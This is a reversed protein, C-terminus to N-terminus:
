FNRISRVLHTNSKNEPMVKGQFNEMWAKSQSYPTSSWYNQNLNFSTGVLLLSSNVFYYQSILINLQVIDPVYWGNDFDVASVVPCLGPTAALCQTNYYGSYQSLTGGNIFFSQRNSLNVVNVNANAWKVQVTYDELSVAWGHMGSTDVFFVVGMATQGESPWESPKVISNDTCLIDGVVIPSIMIGNESVVAQLTVSDGECVTDVSRVITVAPTLCDPDTDGDFVDNHPHVMVVTDSQAKVLSSSGLLLLIIWLIKKM